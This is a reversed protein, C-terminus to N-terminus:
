WQTAFTGAMTACTNQNQCRRYVPLLIQAHAVMDLAPLISTIGLFFADGGIHYKSEISFNQQM